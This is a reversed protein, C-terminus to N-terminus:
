YYVELRIKGSDDSMFFAYDLPLKPASTFVERGPSEGARVSTFTVATLTFIVTIIIHHLTKM